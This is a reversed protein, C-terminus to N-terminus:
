VDEELFVEVESFEYTDGQAIVGVTKLFLEEAKMRAEDTSDAEVIFSDEWTATVYVQHEM